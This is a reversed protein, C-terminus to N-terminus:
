VLTFRVAPYIRGLFHALDEAALREASSADAPVLVPVEAAPSAALPLLLAAILVPLFIRVESIRIKM